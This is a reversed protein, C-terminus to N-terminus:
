SSDETLPSIREIEQAVAAKAEPYPILARLVAQEIEV